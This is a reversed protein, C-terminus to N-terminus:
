NPKPVQVQGQCHSVRTGHLDQGPQHLNTHAGEAPRPDDQACPNYHSRQVVELLASKM